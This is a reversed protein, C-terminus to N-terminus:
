RGLIKHLNALSQYAADMASLTPHGEQEIVFWTTGASKVCADCVQKFPVDGEGIAAKGHGGDKKYEKLHVTIGRGPHDLIPQLPDAGGAMGNATDYQLIFDKPTNAALIDWASRPGDIPKMDGAHCHFGTRMGHPRLKEVIQSLERATAETAARTNRKEEPLWPVVLNTCGITKHFALTADLKEPAFEDLRIHTGAVKLGTEDLVAKIDAASKGHYGAFEVGEYGMARVRRMVDFLDRAADERVSYLQLAIPITM